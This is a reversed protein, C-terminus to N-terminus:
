PTSLLYAAAVVGGLFGGMLVEKVTHRKIIVRSIGLLVTLGLWTIGHLPTVTYFLVSVLVNFATHMSSKIYFNSVHLILMLLLIYLIFHILKGDQETFFLLATYVMIVSFNFLYLGNRQKRNSVDMNTYRGRKVNWYIWSYIPLVVLLIIWLLHKLAEERDMRHYGYYVFFVLLSSLPNMVNSIIHSFFWLGSLARIM